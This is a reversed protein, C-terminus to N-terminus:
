AVHAMLKPYIILFAVVLTFLAAILVAGSAADKIIGAKKDYHPSVLDVLVEIATNILELILVLAISFSIWLWENPKLGLWCGMVVVMMAAACEVQFSLQTRLAYNIGRQAYVFSKLFKRM